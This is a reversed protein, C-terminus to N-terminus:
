IEVTKTDTAIVSGVVDTKEVNGIRTYVIEVKKESAYKSFQKCLVAGQKIIYRLTKKDMNDEIKAIVHGSPYGEVHFWMHYDEADDIIDFNEYANKGIVFEVNIKFKPFHIFRSIPM